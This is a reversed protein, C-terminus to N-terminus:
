FQHYQRFFIKLFLEVMPDHMACVYNEIFDNLLNEPLKKNGQNKIILDDLFEELKKGIPRIM